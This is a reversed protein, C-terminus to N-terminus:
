AGIYGIIKVSRPIIFFMIGGPAYKNVYAADYKKGDDGIAIFNGDVGKKSIQEMSLITKGDLTKRDLLIAAAEEFDNFCYVDRKEANTNENETKFIVTKFTKVDTFPRFGAAELREVAKCETRMKEYNIM